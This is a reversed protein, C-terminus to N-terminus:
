VIFYKDKYLAIFEDLNMDKAKDLERQSEHYVKEAMDVQKKMQKLISKAIERKEAGIESTVEEMLAKVKM